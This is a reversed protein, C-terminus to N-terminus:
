QHKNIDIVAIESVAGTKFPLAWGSIGSTVIFDTDKRREYGYLADNAGILVGIQGAPFLPGGHTHGSLVLDAACSAEENYDNPQHDIVIRYRPETVQAMLTMMSARDEVSRDQRGILCVKDNIDAIDDELIVVGNETLSKRLSEENFDRYGDSYYGKDHNGFAFYVGYKANIDGLAECAREMDAKCSEDDVFDGAVVVIDPELEDIRKMQKAFGEGDLTIGLHSDAILAIRLGDGINKGTDIDYRTIYIHHAFYWGVALYVATIVLAAAGSWNREPKKGSIKRVIGAIIDCILWIIFLHVMVVIVTSINVIAWAGCVAAAIGAAALWALFPHSNGLKKLFSFRHFGCVIYATGALAFALMVSLIALWM